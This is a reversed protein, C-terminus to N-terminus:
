NDRAETSRVNAEDAADLDDYQVLNCLAMWHEREDDRVNKFVDYLSNLEHPRDGRRFSSVESNTGSSKSVACFAEFLHPNNRYDVEYYKRAIEPVPLARLEDEHIALFQHQHTFAFHSSVLWLPSLPFAGHTCSVHLLLMEMLPQFRSHVFQFEDVFGFERVFGFQNWPIM